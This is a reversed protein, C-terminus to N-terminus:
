QLYKMYIGFFKRFTDRFRRLFFWELKEAYGADFAEIGGGAKKCGRVGIPVTVVM